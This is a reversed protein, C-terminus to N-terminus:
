RGMMGGSMMGGNIRPRFAASFNLFPQGQTMMPVAAVAQTMRERMQTMIPNQQTSSTRITSMNGFISGMLGRYRNVDVKNGPMVQAMQGGMQSAMNRAATHMASNSNAIYNGMMNTNAPMGLEVRLAETAADVTNYKGSEIMERIQTSIPSIFNKVSGTVSGAASSDVSVAHMSLVYSNSIPTHAPDDLDYTQGAIALAVIPFKGVDGPSVELTYSGDGKTTAAPEGEDLQYNKNIDMFVTAGVLYGDAVTGVIVSKATGASNNTMSAGSGCGAILAAALLTAATVLQKKM